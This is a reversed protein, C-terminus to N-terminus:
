EVILILIDDILIIAAVFWFKPELEIDVQSKTVERLFPIM